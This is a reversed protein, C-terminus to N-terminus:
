NVRRPVSSIFPSKEGTIQNVDLGIVALQLPLGIQPASLGACEYDKHVKWMLSILQPSFFPFFHSIANVNVCFIARHSLPTGIGSVEQFAPKSIISEDIKDCKQRLIPDGVQCVFDYPADPFQPYFQSRYLQAITKKASYARFTQNIFRNSCKKISFPFFAIKGYM